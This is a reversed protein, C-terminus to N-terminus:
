KKVFIKAKRDFEEFKDRAPGLMSEVNGLVLFGGKNLSLWFRELIQEQLERSFYIFLNRCFIMDMHELPIGAIIDHSRFDMYTPWEERICYRKNGVDYFYRGVLAKREPSLNKFQSEEYVGESAKALSQGDIDTGCITLKYDALKSGLYEAILMLVSYPEEGSSCACSWIRVTKSDLARKKEFIAPIVNKEIADFVFADRFFETVNITMADMLYDIEEPHLRLYALYQEFNDRKTMRVRVMIRRSLINERYLSFDLGREEKIRDLIKDLYPDKTETM